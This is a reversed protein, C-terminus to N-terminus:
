TPVEGLPDQPLARREVYAEHAELEMRERDSLDERRAAAAFAEHASVRPHSFLGDFGMEGQVLEPYGWMAHIDSGPEHKHLFLWDKGLAPDSVEFLEISVLKPRPRVEGALILVFLGYRDWIMGFVTYERGIELAYVALDATNLHAAAAPSLNEASNHRAVVKM